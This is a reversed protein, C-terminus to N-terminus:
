PCDPPTMPPVVDTCNVTVPPIAFACSGPVPGCATPNYVCQNFTALWPGNWGSISATISGVAPDSVLNPHCRWQNPPVGCTIGVVGAKACCRQQWWVSCAATVSSASLIALTGAAGACLLKTCSRTAKM